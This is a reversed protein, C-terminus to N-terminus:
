RDKAVNGLRDAVSDACTPPWLYHADIDSTPGTGSKTRATLHFPGRGTPEQLATGLICTESSHTTFSLPSRTQQAIFYGFAAFPAVFPDACLPDLERHCLHLCVASRRGQIRVRDRCEHGALLVVRVRVVDIILRWM